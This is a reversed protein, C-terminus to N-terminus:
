ADDDESDDDIIGRLENRFRARSDMVPSRNAANVLMGVLMEEDMDAAAERFIVHGGDRDRFMVEFAQHMVDYIVSTRLGTREQAAARVREMKSEVAAFQEQTM